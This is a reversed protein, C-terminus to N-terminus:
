YRVGAALATLTGLQEIGNAKVYNLVGEGWKKAHEGQGAAGAVTYHINQNLNKVLDSGEAATRAHEAVTKAQQLVSSAQKFVSGWGWGGAAPEAAAPAAPAAAQAPDPFVPNIASTPVPGRVSRASRTSETSKRGAVDSVATKAGTLNGKSEARSLPRSNSTLTPKKTAISATPTSSRQTIEDLFDLVSQADEPQSAPPHASPSPGGRSGPAPAPAGSRPAAASYSDLDDLFSLVDDHSKRVKPEAM